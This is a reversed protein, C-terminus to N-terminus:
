LKSAAAHIVECIYDLTSDPMGAWTPLWFAERAIRRAVPYGRGKVVCHRFAPVDPLIPWIARADIDAARLANLYHERHASHVTYLWCSETAWSAVPRRGLKGSAFLDDLREDYGEAAQQRGTTLEDWREAQGIGIAATLNTMRYNTGRMEHWYPRASTMGHNATVRAENAIDARDTLLAGGEGTSIAKNAHFSFISLDGLSGVSRGRYCAGHAEAADEILYAHEAVARVADVDFPHGILDVGIIVETPKRRIVEDLALPDITWTLPDVDVFCLDFGTNLAAAAPAAFTLAPVVATDYEYRLITKLALELALTGNAVALAHQRGTVRCLAAEFAAINAGTGSIWGGDIAEHVLTRERSSLNPQSLPIM